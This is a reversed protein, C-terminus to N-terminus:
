IQYKNVVKDLKPNYLIKVRDNSYLVLGNSFVREVRFKDDLMELEPKREEESILDIIIQKLKM